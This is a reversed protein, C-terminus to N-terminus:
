SHHFIVSITFQSVVERLLIRKIGNSRKPKENTEIPPSLAAVINANKDVIDAYQEIKSASTSEEAATKAAYKQKPLSGNASTSAALTGIPPRELVVSCKKPKNKSEKPTKVRKRGRVSMAKIQRLAVEKAKRPPRRESM